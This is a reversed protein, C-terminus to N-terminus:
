DGDNDQYTLLIGLASPMDSKLPLVVKQLKTYVSEVSSQNSIITQSLPDGLSYCASVADAINNKLTENTASADFAVLHDDFGLGDTNGYKGLYLNQFSQISQNLLEASFKGYYAETQEPLAVGLSKIGVPIAIKGDRLYREFYENMANLLLSASSGLSYGNSNIFTSLYTNWALVVNDVKTKISLVLAQLYQKRNTATSATLYYAVVEGDTKNDYYLLYDIAPFGKATSNSLYDVNFFATQINNQIKTTDTPYVNLNARLSVNTAPGFEFIDCSQWHLYAQKFKNRLDQLNLVNPNNVFTDTAVSLDNVGNQLATYSPVIINTGINNLMGKLDFNKEDSPKPKHHCAFVVLISFLILSVKKM